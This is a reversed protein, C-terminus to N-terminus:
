LVPRLYTLRTISGRNKILSSHMAHCECAHQVANTTWFVNAHFIFIFLSQYSYCIEYLIVSQSSIISYLFPFSSKVVIVKVLEHFVSEGTDEQKLLEKQQTLQQLIEALNEDLEESNRVDRAKDNKFDEKHYWDQIGEDPNSVDLFSDSKPYDYEGPYVVDGLAGGETFVAAHTTAILVAALLARRM